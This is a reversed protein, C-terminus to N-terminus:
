RGIGSTMTADLPPLTDIQFAAMAPPLDTSLRATSNVAELLGTSVAFVVFATVTLWNRM